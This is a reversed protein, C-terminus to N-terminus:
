GGGAGYLERDRDALLAQIYLDIPMEMRQAEQELHMLVRSHMKYRLLVYPGEKLLALILHKLYTGFSEGRERAQTLAWAVGPLAPSMEIKAFETDPRRPM